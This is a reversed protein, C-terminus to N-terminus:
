DAVIAYKGDLLFLLHARQEGVLRDGTKVPLYM